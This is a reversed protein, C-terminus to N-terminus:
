SQAPIASPTSPGAGSPGTSRATAPPLHSDQRGNNDHVHTTALRPGAALTEERVSTSLNAHGTDLALALKPHDLEALLEALEIM